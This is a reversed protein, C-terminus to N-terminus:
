NRSLGHNKPLERDLIKATDDPDQIAYMVLSFGQGRLRPYGEDNISFVDMAGSAAVTVPSLGTDRFIDHPFYLNYVQHARFLHTRFLDHGQLLPIELRQLPYRSEAEHPVTQYEGVAGSLPSVREIGWVRGIANAVAFLAVAMIGVRVGALPSLEKMNANVTLGAALGTFMAFCLAKFLRSKLLIKYDMPLTEEMRVHPPNVMTLGCLGIIVVYCIGLYLFMAYPSIGMRTMGWGAVQSFLAAGGGFGAVTIGTVLGKHEPFWALGVTVPVLYVTGVGIGALIGIGAATLIFTHNGLSALIWGGGFLLAGLLSAKQPGLRRLIKDSFILTLPFVFYFISFPSQLTGQMLGTIEKLPRVFVAWSYTASLCMQMFVAAVLITYRRISHM